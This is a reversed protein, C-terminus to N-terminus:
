QAPPAPYVGRIANRCADKVKASFDGKVMWQLYDRPVRRMPEDKHKGFGICLENELWKLKGECDFWDPSCLDHLKQIDRPLTAFTKLQAALVRTSWRVDGLATHAGDALSHKEDKTLWRDAADELSRSEGIQWIRFADVVRADEYDWLRKNRKFEAGLMKLDFRVNYGCFDAGAFGKLLNDAIDAFTPWPTFEHPGADPIRLPDFVHQSSALGCVRCGQVQADTIGHVATAGPPIPMQPNLLTRYEKTPKGPVMIELALEIIKSSTPNTGTTETDIGILPRELRLVEPITIL